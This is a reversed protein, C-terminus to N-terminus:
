QDLTGTTAPDSLAALGGLAFLFVLYLVTVIIGAVAAIIAWRRAKRSSEQAGAYDGSAWKGNVQAAFVISVIGFPLCCLVTTLIAWVLNSPPPQSGSPGVPASEYPSSM